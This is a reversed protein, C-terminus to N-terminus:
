DYTGTLSIEMDTNTADPDDGIVCWIKSGSPVTADDFTTATFTGNATDNADITTGGTYGIAATKHYCTLTLETTPDEDLYVAIETLTIAGATKPDMVIIGAHGSYVENPDVHATQHYRNIKTLTASALSFTIDADAGPLANDVNTTGNVLLPTTAVIDVNVDNTKLVKLAPDGPSKTWLDEGIFGMTMHGVAPDPVAATNQPLDVAYTGDSGTTIGIAAGIQALTSEILSGGQALVATATLAPTTDDTQGTIDTVSFGAGINALIGANNASGLMTQVDASPTIGAYTTLDADYAQVNTGIALGLTTRATSANADDWLTSIFNGEDSIMGFFNSSNPTALFTGVGSGPTIGAWTTLNASAAQYAALANTFWTEDTFSHDDDADFYHLYDYVDDKEPAATDSNWGSGYTENVGTAGATVTEIKDRVANKTPADTNGDWTGADYATDDATGGGCDIGWPCQGFAQACSLIIFSLICIIRKM